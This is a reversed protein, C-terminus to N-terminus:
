APDYVGDPSISFPLKLCVHFFCTEIGSNFLNALVSCSLPSVNEVILDIIMKAVIDPHLDNITDILLQTFQLDVIVVALVLGLGLQFDDPLDGGYVAPVPQEVVRLLPEDGLPELVHPQNVRHM